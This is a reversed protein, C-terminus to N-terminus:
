YRAGYATGVGGTAASGGGGSDGQPIPMTGTQQVAGQTHQQRGPEIHVVQRFRTVDELIMKRIEDLDEVIEFDTNLPTPCSPEDITDHYNRLFPHELAADVSIRSAPDFALMQDLIDLADPNANPYIHSFSIKPMFPLSRIYMSARESAIRSLCEENPTGLIGLIQNLQDVYDRGQFLCRRGLLEALICGVSWM